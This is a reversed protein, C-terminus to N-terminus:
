LRNETIKLLWIIAIKARNQATKPRNQTLFVAKQKLNRGRLQDPAGPRAKSVQSLLASV